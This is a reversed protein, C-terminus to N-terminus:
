TATEVTREDTAKLANRHDPVIPVRMRSTTYTRAVAPM